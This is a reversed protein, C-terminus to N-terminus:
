APPQTARPLTEWMQRLGEIAQRQEKPVHEPVPATLFAYTQLGLYFVVSGILAIIAAPRMPRQVVTTDASQDWFTALNRRLFFFHILWSIQMLLGLGFGMGWIYVLVSRKLAAGLALTPPGDPRQSIVHLGFLFKGPTIGWYHLLLAEIFVWGALSGLQAM